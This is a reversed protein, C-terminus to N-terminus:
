RWRPLARSPTMTCGACQRRGAPVHHTRTAGGAAPQCWRGRGSARWKLAHLSTSPRAPSRCWSLSPRNFQHSSLHMTYRATDRSLSILPLHHSLPSLLHHSHMSHSLLLDDCVEAPDVYVAEHVADLISQARYRLLLPMAQQGARMLEHRSLSIKTTGWRHEACAIFANFQAMTCDCMPVVIEAAVRRPTDPQADVTLFDKALTTGALAIQRIIRSEGSEAHRLTCKAHPPKPKMAVKGPVYGLHRRQHDEFSMRKAPLTLVFDREHHCALSYLKSSYLTPFSTLEAALQCTNDSIGVHLM